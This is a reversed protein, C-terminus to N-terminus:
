FSFDHYKRRDGILVGSGNAKGGERLQGKAKGRRVARFLFRRGNLNREYEYEQSESMGNKDTRIAKDEQVTFSGDLGVDVITGAYRDTWGLVTAGM